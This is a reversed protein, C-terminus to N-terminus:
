WQRKETHTNAHKKGCKLVFVSSFGSPLIIVQQGHKCSMPGIQSKLGLFVPRFAEVCSLLRKRIRRGSNHCWSVLRNTSRGVRPRDAVRDISQDPQNVLGSHKAKCISAQSSCIHVGPRCALTCRAHPLNPSADAAQPMPPM